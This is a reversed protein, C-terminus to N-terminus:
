LKAGEEPVDYALRLLFNIVSLMKAKTIGNHTPMQLVKYIATGKEELTYKDSEIQVFIACAKGINM